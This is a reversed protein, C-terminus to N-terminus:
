APAGLLKRRARLLLATAVEGDRGGLKTECEAILSADEAFDPDGELEPVLQEMGSLLARAWALAAAADAPRGQRLARAAESLAQGVRYGVYSKTVAAQVPGRDDDGLPLALEVREVQERAWILDTYAITADAVVGAGPVVLDLLIGHTDGSGFRPIVVQIDRPHGPAPKELSLARTVRTELEPDLAAEAGPSPVPGSGLVEVLGVEPALRITLRIARAVPGGASLLERDVFSEADEVSRITARAGRGALAVRDLDPPWPGPGVGAVSWRIGAMASQHAIDVLRALDRPPKSTALVILSSGPAGAGADVLQRAADLASVVDLAGADEAESAPSLARDVAVRVSGYTLEEPRMITGRKGAVIVGFRDGLDRAGAFALALERVLEAVPEGTDRELDLVLAALLPSRSGPRRPTAAVGVQLLLRSRQRVARRDAFLSLALASREPPDLWSLDGGSANRAVHARGDQAALWRLEADDPRYSNGFLGRADLLSVGELRDREAMLEQAVRLAVVDPDNRLGGPLVFAPKSGEPAVRTGGLIRAAVADVGDRPIGAIDALGCGVLASADAAEETWTEIPSGTGPGAGAGAARAARAQRAESWGSLLEPVALSGLVIWLTAAIAVKMAAAPGSESGVIRM